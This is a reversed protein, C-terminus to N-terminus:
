RLTESTVEVTRCSTVNHIQVFDAERRGIFLLRSAIKNMEM